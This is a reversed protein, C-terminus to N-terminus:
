GRSFLPLGLRDRVLVAIQTNTAALLDPDSTGDENRPMQAYMARSLTVLSVEECLRLSEEDTVGEAVIIEYGAGEIRRRQNELQGKSRFSRRTRVGEFSKDKGTYEFVVHYRGRPDVFDDKAMELAKRPNSEGCYPESPAKGRQRQRAAHAIVFEPSGPLGANRLATRKM